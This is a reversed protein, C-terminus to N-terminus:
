TSIDLCSKLAMLGRHLWTKITNVPHDFRVALEERSYGEYYALLICSRTPEEIEGLCHRLAAINMMLTERDGPEALKAFIDAGDTEAAPEAPNKSRLVDIARNRAISILWGMAPGAEASFSDANQWIRLFVDQLVDEAAAKNRLIRLLIAFLKPAIRRYLEKFAIRDGRAVAGLLMALEANDAAALASL